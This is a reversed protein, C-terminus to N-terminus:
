VAANECLENRVQTLAKGLLNAGPWQAEPVVSARGATIGIGWIRDYPAAEVLLTDGTALLARRLEPDQSFKLRNGRVVIDYAAASWREASFGTVRRGLAKIQKPDDCAMIRALSADDGFLEAKKAMMYQETSAYVANNEEFRCPHWQSFVHNDSGGVPKASYFFTYGPM